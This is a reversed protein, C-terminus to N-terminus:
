GVSYVTAGDCYILRREGNPIAIVTTPSADLICNISATYGSDNAIFLLHKVAPLIVTHAASAGTSILMFAASQVAAAAVQVPTDSSAVTVSETVAADLAAIAANATADMQVQSAEILTIGLNDTTSM